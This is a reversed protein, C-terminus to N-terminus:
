RGPQDLRTELQALWAELLAAYHPLRQYIQDAIPENYTHVTLNRDDIMELGLTTQEENLLGVERCLRIAAKPSGASLGERVDLYRQAARWTAEVTYEFRQIAADREIRTVKAQQLLETLSHLADKAVALRQTLREM